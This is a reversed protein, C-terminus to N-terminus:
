ILSTKYLNVSSHDRNLIRLSIFDNLFPSFLFTTGDSWCDCCSLKSLSLFHPCDRALNFKLLEDHCNKKLYHHEKDAFM